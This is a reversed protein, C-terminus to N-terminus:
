DKSYMGFEELIKKRDLKVNALENLTLEKLSTNSFNNVVMKFLEESINNKYSTDLKGVDLKMLVYELADNVTTMQSKLCNDNVLNNFVNYMDSKSLGLIRDKFQNFYKIYFTLQRTKYFAIDSSVYLLQVSTNKPYEIKTILALFDKFLLEKAYKVDITEIYCDSERLFQLFSDVTPRREKGGIMAQLKKSYEINDKFVDIDNIIEGYLKVNRDKYEDELYNRVLFRMIHEQEM